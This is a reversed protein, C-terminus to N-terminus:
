TCQVRVRVCNFLVVSNLALLFFVRFFYFCVGCLFSWGIPRIAVDVVWIM